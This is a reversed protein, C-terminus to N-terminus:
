WWWVVLWVSGDVWLWVRREERPPWVREDELQVVRSVLWLGVVSEVREGRVGVM